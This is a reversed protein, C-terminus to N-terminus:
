AIVKDVKKKGEGWGKVPKYYERGIENKIVVGIKYLLYQITNIPHVQKIEEITQGKLRRDLIDRQQNTINKSTRVVTMVEEVIVHQFLPVMSLDEVNEFYTNDEVYVEKSREKNYKLSLNSLYFRLRKSMMWKDQVKEIFELKTSNICKEVEFYADQVFDRQIERGHYSVMKSCHRILPLYKTYLSLTSEKLKGEKGQKVLEYDSM